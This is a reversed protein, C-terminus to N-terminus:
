KFKSDRRDSMLRKTRRDGQGTMVDDALKQHDYGDCVRVRDASSCCCTCLHLSDHLGHLLLNKNWFLDNLDSIAAHQHSIQNSIAQVYTHTGNIGLLGHLARLTFFRETDLVYSFM